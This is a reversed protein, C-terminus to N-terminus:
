HLVATTVLGPAEGLQGLVAGSHSWIASHGATWDYGAGTPGAFSALGVPIGHVAAISSGRRGQEAREQPLM